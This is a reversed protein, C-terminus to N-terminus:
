VEFRGLRTTVSAPSNNSCLVWVFLLSAYLRGTTDSCLLFQSECLRCLKYSLIFPNLSVPHYNRYLPFKCAYDSTTVSFIDTHNGALADRQRQQWDPHLQQHNSSSNQSHGATGSDRQFVQLEVGPFELKTLSAIVCTEKVTIVKIAWYLSYMRNPKRGSLVILENVCLM